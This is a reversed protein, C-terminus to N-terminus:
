LATSSFRSSDSPAETSASQPLNSEFTRLESLIRM